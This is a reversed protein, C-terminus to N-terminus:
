VVSKRDTPPSGIRARGWPRDGALKAGRRGAFMPSRRGARLSRTGSRADRRLQRSQHTSRLVVPRLIARVSAGRSPARIVVLVALGAVGGGAAGAAGSNRLGAAGLKEAASLKAGCPLVWSKRWMAIGGCRVVRKIRLDAPM